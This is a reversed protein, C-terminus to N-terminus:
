STPPADGFTNEAFKARQRKPLLWANRYSRLFECSLTKSRIRLVEGKHYPNPHPIDLFVDFGSIDAWVLSGTELNEDRYKPAYKDVDVWDPDGDDDMVPDADLGKRCVYKHVYWHLAQCEESCYHPKSEPPCYGSCKFLTSRHMAQIGCGQAACRYRHPRKSIRALRKEELARQEFLYGDYARWLYKLDAFWSYVRFDLGVKAKFTHLYRAIRFVVPPIFGKKVLGNALSAAHFMLGHLTVSYLSGPDIETTAFHLRFCMWASLAAACNKVEETRNYMHPTPKPPQPDAENTWYWGMLWQLRDVISDSKEYEDHACSSIRRLCLELIILGDKLELGRRLKGPPHTKLRREAEAYAKKYDPQQRYDYFTEQKLIVYQDFNSPTRSFVSLGPHDVVVEHIVPITPPRRQVPM